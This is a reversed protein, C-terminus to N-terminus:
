GNCTKCKFLSQDDIILPLLLFKYLVLCNLPFCKIFIRIKCTSLIRTSQLYGFHHFNSGNASFHISIEERILLLINILNRKVLLITMKTCEISRANLKNLWLSWFCCSNAYRVIKIIVVRSISLMTTVKFGMDLSSLISMEELPHQLLWFRM